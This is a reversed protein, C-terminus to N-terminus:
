KGCCKKYKLGSGCPCPSNRGIKKKGPKDQIIRQQAQEPVPGQKLEVKLLMDAITNDINQLLLNFLRHGEKKYEVLPDQQGYA